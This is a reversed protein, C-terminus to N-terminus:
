SKNQWLNERMWIAVFTERLLVALINQEVASFISEVRYVSYHLM